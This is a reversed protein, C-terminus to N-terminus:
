FILTTYPGRSSAENELEEGIKCSFVGFSGSDLEPCLGASRIIDRGMDSSDEM